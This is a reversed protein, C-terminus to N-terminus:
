SVAKTSVLVVCGFKIYSIAICMCTNCTNIISVQFVFLIVDSNILKQCNQNHYQLSYKPYNLIKTRSQQTHKAGQDGTEGFSFPFITFYPQIQEM